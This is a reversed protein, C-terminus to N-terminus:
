ASRLRLIAELSGDNRLLDLALDASVPRGLFYGQGRHIGLLRLADLEEQREIGEAIILSGTERSFYILASALARLAPKTDLDRTLSMDLKIMDPALEIIRQLGSHGAGADDVALKMGRARVSALAEVLEIPDEIPAHETIELVFRSLDDEAFLDQFGPDLVAAPSFNLTLYAHEQLAKSAELAARVAALELENGLGVQGAEEFWVNPPRVPEAAFRTLSEFGLIEGKSFDWIPQYVPSFKNGSITSEIRRRIASTEAFVENDSDIQRAAIDAFARLVNLDRDTLSPDASSSLCCFMGFVEGSSLKIPVSMHSGIPATKTIPLSTAILEKSTDPIREPLRGDLIHKCYIDDLSHKDGVKAIAESGPADVSRFISNNGVFESVYAVEMGLHERAARLATQIPSITENEPNSGM